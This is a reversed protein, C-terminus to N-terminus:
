FIASIVRIFPIKILPLLIFVLLYFMAYKTLKNPKTAQIFGLTALIIAFGYVTAIPYTTLIFAILFVNRYKSLLTTAPLCFTIAIMGEIFITWYSIILGITSLGEAGNVDFFLETNNTSLLNQMNIENEKLLLPDVDAVFSTFGYFRPDITNTFKFFSGDVFEPALFKGAVAFLFCLGIIYKAQVRLNNLISNKESFFLMLTIALIVYAFIHKHNPVYGVLDLILYPIVSFLSLLLWFYKNSAIRNFLLGPVVIVPVLIALVTNDKMLILLIILVMKLVLLLLDKENISFGEKLKELTSKINYTKLM